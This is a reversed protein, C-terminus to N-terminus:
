MHYLLCTKIKSILILILQLEFECYAVYPLDGKYKVNDEFTVFNQPDFNYIIRTIGTYYEINTKKVMVILAIIANGLELM